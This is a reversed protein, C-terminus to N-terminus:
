GYTRRWPRWHKGQNEQRPLASVDYQHAAYGGATCCYHIQAETQDLKPVFPPLNQLLVWGSMNKKGLIEFGAQNRESSQCSTTFITLVKVTGDDSASALWKGDPSFALSQVAQTHGQFM